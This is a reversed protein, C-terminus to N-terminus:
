QIENEDIHLDLEKIVRRLNKASICGMKEDDFLSFVKGYGTKTKGSDNFCTFVSM